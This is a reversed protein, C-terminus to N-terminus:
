DIIQSVKHLNHFEHIYIPHQFEVFKIIGRMKQLITKNELMKELHHVYKCSNEFQSQNINYWLSFQINYM